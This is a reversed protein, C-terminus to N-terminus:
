KFILKLMYFINDKKGYLLRFLKNDFKNKNM